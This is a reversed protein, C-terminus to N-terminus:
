LENEERAAYRCYWEILVYWMLVYVWEKVENTVNYEYYVFKLIILRVWINNMKFTTKVM